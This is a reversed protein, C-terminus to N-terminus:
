SEAARVADDIWGMALSVARAAERVRRGLEQQRADGMRSTPGILALAAVIEGALGRVPAAVGRSEDYLEQRDLAYGGARVEALEAQLRGMDTITNGTYAHLPGCLQPVDQPELWAILCKGTATAHLPLTQGVQLGAHLASGSPTIRDICVAQRGARVSLLSTEGTENSLRAMSARASEQLGTRRVVQSGVEFLKLTLSYKGAQNKAVYGDDRLTALLRAVLSKDWALAKALERVGASEVSSLTELIVLANHASKVAPGAGGRSRASTETAM